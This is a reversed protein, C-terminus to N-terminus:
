FECWFNYADELEDSSYNEMRKDNREDKSNMRYMLEEEIDKMHINVKRLELIIDEIPM